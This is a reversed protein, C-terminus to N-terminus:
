MVIYRNETIKKGTYNDIGVEEVVIRDPSKEIRQGNDDVAVVKTEITKVRGGNMGIYDDVKVTYSKGDPAAVMARPTGKVVLIAMLRFQSLEFREMPGKIKEPRTQPKAIVTEKQVLPEFPDRRGLPSYVFGDINAQKNVIEETPASNVAEDTLDQQAFTSVPVGYSLLLLFSLSLGYRKLFGTRM